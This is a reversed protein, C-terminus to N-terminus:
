HNEKCEESCYWYVCPIITDMEDTAHDNDCKMYDCEDRAAKGLKLEGGCKRCVGLYALPNAEGSANDLNAFPDERPPDMPPHYSDLVVPEKVWVEMGILLKSVEGYENADRVFRRMLELGATRAKVDVSRDVLRAMVEGKVRQAEAMEALANLVLWKQRGTLITM